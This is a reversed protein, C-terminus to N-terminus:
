DKTRGDTDPAPADDDGPDESGEGGAQTRRRQDRELRWLFDPDDDPAVPGTRRPRPGPRGPVPRPPTTGGSANRAAASRTRSVAIWAIPGIVPLLVIIAVWAAPHIEAREVSSSRSLDILAFLALALPVIYPLARVM